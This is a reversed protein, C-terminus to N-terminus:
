LELDPVYSIRSLVKEFFYYFPPHLLLLFFFAATAEIDTNLYYDEERFFAPSETQMSDLAPSLTLSSKSM